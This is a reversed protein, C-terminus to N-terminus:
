SVGESFGDTWWAAPQPLSDMRHQAEQGSSCATRIAAHATTPDEQSLDRLYLRVLPSSPVVVETPAVM